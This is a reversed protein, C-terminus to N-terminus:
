VAEPGRAISEVDSKAMARGIIRGRTSEYLPEKASGLVSKFGLDPGLIGHAEIIEISGETCPDVHVIMFGNMGLGSLSGSGAIMRSQGDDAVHFHVLHKGRKQALDGADHM